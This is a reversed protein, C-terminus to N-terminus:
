CRRRCWRHRQQQQHERSEARSERLAIRREQSFFRISFRPGSILTWKACSVAGLFHFPERGFLSSSGLARRSLSLSSLSVAISWSFVLPPHRRIARPRAGREMEEWRRASGQSVVDGVRAFFGGKTKGRPVVVVVPCFCVIVVMMSMLPTFLTQWFRSVCPSSSRSFGKGEGQTWGAAGPFFTDGEWRGVSRSVRREEGREFAISKCPPSRM